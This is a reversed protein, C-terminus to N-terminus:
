YTASWSVSDVLCDQVANQCIIDLDYTGAPVTGSDTASGTVADDIYGAYQCTDSSPVVAVELADDNFHDVVEYSITATTPISEPSANVIVCDGPAIDLAGAGQLTYTTPGSPGTRVTGGGGCGVLGLVVLAVGIRQM